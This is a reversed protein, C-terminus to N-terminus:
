RKKNRAIVASAALAQPELSGVVFEVVGGPVVVGGGPSVVVGGGPSVVVGGGM